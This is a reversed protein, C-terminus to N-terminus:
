ENNIKSDFHLKNETPKLSLYKDLAIAHETNMAVM